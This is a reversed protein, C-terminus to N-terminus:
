DTKKEHNERKRRWYRWLLVCVSVLFLFAFIAAACVGALIEGLYSLGPMFGYGPLSDYYRAMGLSFAASALETLLLVPAGTKRRILRVFLVIVLVLLVAFVLLIM